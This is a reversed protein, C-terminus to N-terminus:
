IDNHDSNNPAYHRNPVGARMGYWDEDENESLKWRRTFIVKRFSIDRVSMEFSFLVFVVLSDTAGKVLM